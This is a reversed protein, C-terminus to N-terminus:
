RTDLSRPPESDSAAPDHGQKFRTHPTDHIWKKCALCWFHGKM